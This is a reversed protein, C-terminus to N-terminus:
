RPAELCMHVLWGGLVMGQQRVQGCEICKSFDLAEEVVVGPHAHRSRFLMGLVNMNQPSPTYCLLPPPQTLRASIPARPWILPQDCCFCPHSTPQRPPVYPLVDM